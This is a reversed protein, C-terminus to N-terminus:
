INLSSFQDIARITDEKVTLALQQLPLRNRKSLFSILMTLNVGSIVEVQPLKRALHIASNWCSGGRLSVMIVVGDTWKEAVIIAELSDIIAELSLNGVSFDYLGDIDGLISRAADVLSAAIQGHTLVIGGIM